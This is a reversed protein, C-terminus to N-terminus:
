RLQHAIMAVLKDGASKLERLQDDGDGGTRAAVKAVGMVPLLNGYRFTHVYIPERRDATTLVVPAEVVPEYDGHASGAVFGAFSLKVSLLADVAADAAQRAQDILVVRYGVRELEERLRQTMWSALRFGNLGPNVEPDARDAGLEQLFGRVNWLGTVKEVPAGGEGSLRWWEYAEVDSIALLAVRNGKLPKESSAGASEFGALTVMGLFLLVGLRM